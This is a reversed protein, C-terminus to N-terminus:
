FGNCPILYGGYISTWSEFGEPINGKTYPVDVIFTNATNDEVNPAYGAITTKCNPCVFQNNKVQMIGNCNPCRMEVLAM